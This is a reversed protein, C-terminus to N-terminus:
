LNEDLTLYLNSPIKCSCSCKLFNKCKINKTNQLRGCINNEDLLINNLFMPRHVYAILFENNKQFSIPHLELIKIMIEKM